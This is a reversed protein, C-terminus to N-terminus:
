ESEELIIYMFSCGDADPDTMPAAMTKKIDASTIDYKRLDLIVNCGNPIVLEAYYRSKYNDFRFGLIKGCYENSIVFIEM